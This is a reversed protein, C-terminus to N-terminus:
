AGTEGDAAWRAKRKELFADIGERAEDSTRREAIRHATLKQLGPGLPAGDVERILHKAASVAGPANGLLAAIWGQATAEAAHRDEAVHHVLSLAHATEATFIEGTLFYRRAQRAGMAAVVYPSITAPTLGLKVESFAFRTGAVAVVMDSAAVLGAGGGMAAGHVLTIVPTDCTAMAHLMEALGVADAQNDDLSMDAARRMWALDAGASFTKGEGSLLIARVDPDAGLTEFAQKLDRILADNFANRVDPRNLRLRAVPGDIETILDSM